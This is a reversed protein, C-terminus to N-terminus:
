FTPCLQKLKGTLSVLSTPQRDDTDLTDEAGLNFTDVRLSDERVLKRLYSGESEEEELEGTCDWWLHGQKAAAPAVFPIGLYDLRQTVLRGHWYIELRKPLGDHVDMEVLIRAM